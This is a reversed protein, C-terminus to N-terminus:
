ARSGRRCRARRARTPGARGRLRRRRRDRRSRRRARGPRDGDISTRARPGPRAPGRHRRARCRWTRRRQGPKRSRGGGPTRAGTSCTPTTGPRMAGVSPPTTASSNPHRHTNRPIITRTGRAANSASEGIRASPDPRGRRLRRGRGREEQGGAGREEEGSEADRPTHIVGGNTTTPTTRAIVCSRRRM